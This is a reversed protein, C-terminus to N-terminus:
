DIGSLVLDATNTAAPAEVPTYRVLVLASDAATVGFAPPGASAMVWTTVTDPDTVRGDEPYRGLGLNYRGTADTTAVGSYLMGAPRPSLRQVVFVGALPRGGASRVVGSLTAHASIPFEGEPDTSGDCATLLVALLVISSRMMVHYRSSGGVASAV